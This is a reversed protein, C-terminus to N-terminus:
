RVNREVKYRGNSTTIIGQLEMVFLKEYLEQLGINIKVCIENISLEKALLKCIERYEEDIKDFDILEDNEKSKVEKISIQKPDKGTYKSIIENPNLVLRAGKQILINTGIGKGNIISNPICFIDKGQEKAFRATISTGSRFEAEVILVGLSLASVIRNRRRFRESKVPTKDPYESVIAGGKELIKEYIEKNQPPFIYKPGCGLVAITKGNVELAGKHAEADIGKAMGSIITFGEKAINVAFMRANQRGENTCDRSGVIAIGKCNLIDKNGLVYLKAPTDKINRLNEPYEEDKIDIEEIKM